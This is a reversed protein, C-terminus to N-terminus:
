SVNAESLDTDFDSDMDTVLNLDVDAEVLKVM